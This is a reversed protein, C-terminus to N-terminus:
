INKLFTSLVVWNFVEVGGIFQNSQDMYYNIKRMQSSTLDRRMIDAVQYRADVQANIMINYIPESEKWNKQVLMEIKRFEKLNNEKLSESNTNLSQGLSISCILLAIITIIKKM